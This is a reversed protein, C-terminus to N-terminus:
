TYFGAETAASFQGTEANFTAASGGADFLSSIIGGIVSVAFVAVFMLLTFGILPLANAQFKSWAWKYAGGISYGSQGGGQGGGGYGYGGPPPPPPAQGYDPQGYTPQGYAPQGYAPPPPIEGGPPPVQGESPMDNPNQPENGYTSVNEGGEVPSPGL